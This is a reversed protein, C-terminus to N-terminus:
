PGARWRQHASCSCTRTPWVLTSRARPRTAGLVNRGWMRPSPQPPAVHSAPTPAEVLPRRPARPRASRPGLPGAGILPGRNYRRRRGGGRLHRHGVRQRGANAVTLTYTVTGGPFVPDFGTDSKSMSLDIAPPQVNVCAQTTATLGAPSVTGAGTNGTITATNLVYTGIALSPSVDARVTISGSGGPAVNGVNWTLNQGVQTAPSPTSSVFTLGAALTDAVTASYATASGVNTYNILYSVRSGAGVQPSPTPTKTIRLLATTATNVAVKTNEVARRFSGDTKGPSGVQATRGRACTTM